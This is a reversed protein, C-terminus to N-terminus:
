TAGNKEPTKKQVCFTAIIIPKTHGDQTIFTVDVPSFGCLKLTNQLNEVIQNQCLRLFPEGGPEVSMRLSGTLSRMGHTTQDRHMNRNSSTM